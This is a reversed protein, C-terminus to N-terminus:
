RFRLGIWCGSGDRNFCMTTIMDALCAAGAAILWWRYVALFGRANNRFRQRLDDFSRIVISGLLCHCLEGATRLM